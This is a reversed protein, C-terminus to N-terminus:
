PKPVTFSFPLQLLQLVRRGGLMAPSFRAAAVARRVAETFVPHTTSVTGFTGMDARGTTDVVFEVVVRGGVGASLLADPYVPAVPQGSDARAPVDVQEATYLKLSAILNALDQATVPKRPVKVTPEVRKTWLAIVGCSGEGRPGMLVSPVTAAGKYVEIGALSHPDFLDPDLYALTAANGDIWVLPPCGRGRFTVVNQGAGPTFQTGPITRLLDTVLRPNRKEIDQATFFVGAGRDRREYFARLFGSYKASRADIVVPAVWQANPSLRVRLESVTGAAVTVSVSEPRFGIRRVVLVHAGPPVSALRFSGDDESVGHGGLGVISVRAGAVPTALTDEVTGGVIGTSINGTPPSVSGSQAAATASSLLTGLLAATLVTLGTNRPYGEAGRLRFQSPAPLPLASRSM